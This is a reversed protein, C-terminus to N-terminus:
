FSVLLQVSKLEVLKSIKALFGRLECKQLSGVVVKMAGLLVRM